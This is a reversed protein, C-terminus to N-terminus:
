EFLNNAQKKQINYVKVMNIIAKRINETSECFRVGTQFMGIKTEKCYAIDGNIEILENDAGVFELLIKNADIPSHSELLLGGQSIDVATGIGQGLENSDNDLCIYSMLNDTKIRAHKRREDQKMLTKEKDNPIM